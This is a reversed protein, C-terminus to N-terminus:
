LLSAIDVKKGVSSPDAYHYLITSIDDGLLSSAAEQGFNKYVTCACLKRLEYASKSGTFGLDRMYRRLRAEALDVPKTSYYSKFLRSDHSTFQPLWDVSPVFPATEHTARYEVIENWTQEDIPWHVVRGSTLRTKHPTYKLYVGDREHQFNDWTLLKVDSNRMGFRLMMTAFFWVDPDIVNLGGSYWRLVAERQEHSRETYRSPAIYFSPIKIDKVLYGLEQYRYHTWKAGLGRFGEIYSKATVDRLGKSILMEFCREMLEMTIDTYPIDLPMELTKCVIKTYRIHMTECGVSPRGGTRRRQDECLKPYVEIMEEITPVRNDGKKPPPRRIKCDATREYDCYVEM